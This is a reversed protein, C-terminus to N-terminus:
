EIEVDFGELTELYKDWVFNKDRSYESLNLYFYADKSEIEHSFIYKDGTKNYLETKENIENITKVIDKKLEEIVDETVDLWVYANSTVFKAKVEDPLSEFSNSELALNLYKEEDYKFHKLWMKIPTSLEKIMDRRIANKSKLKGNKQEYSVNIYKLFDWGVKINELAVGMQHIGLAYLMLQGKEKQLKDGKYETSTKFDLIRYTGDDERFISDIYGHFLINNIKILIFKEIAVKRDIPIFNNFYHRISNEYKDAVKSNMEDDTRDYKLDMLQMDFLYNEYKTICDQYKIKGEYLDELISHCFGGSVGWITTGSRDPAEKLIYKLFYESPSNKYTNYRSWSWIQSVNYKKKLEEIEEKTKRAM